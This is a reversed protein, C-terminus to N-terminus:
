IQVVISGKWTKEQNEKKTKLAKKIDRLRQGVIVLYKLKAILLSQPYSKGTELLRGGNPLVLYSVTNSISPSLYDEAFYISPSSNLYAEPLQTSHYVGKISDLRYREKEAEVIRTFNLVISGIQMRKKQSSGLQKEGIYVGNIKPFNDVQQIKNPEIFMAKPEKSKVKKYKMLENNDLFSGNVLFHNIDERRTSQNYIEIDNSPRWISILFKAISKNLLNKLNLKNTMDYMITYIESLLNRYILPNFKSIVDDVIGIFAKYTIDNIYRGQRIILDADSVLSITLLRIKCDKLEFGHKALINLIANVDSSLRNLLKKHIEALGTKKLFLFAHSKVKYQEITRPDREIICLQFGFDKDPGGINIKDFKYGM